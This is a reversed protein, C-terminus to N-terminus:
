QTILNLIRNKVFIVKRIQAGSSLLNRVSGLEKAKTEVTNQDSDPEFELKAKTKGNIQIAITIRELQVLAEEYKPWPATSIFGKEGIKEWIEEAFHPAFPALCQLFIKIVSRPRNKEQSLTNVFIMLQSIATNFALAEIDHTTKKITQHLTRLLKESPKEEDLLLQGKEDHILTWFKNLFKFVGVLGTHQWPRDKELPGMFLVYTRLADAGYHDIIEDPSITNGHSKSMREGDEGLIIGQHVLKQFPEKHSVLGEEYLFKQWFRAYLLHGVTHETGGVYLDVPMFYEQAEFSFPEKDNHPDTYRLFYWSSGASSPMTDTERRGIEDTKPNKYELWDKPAKSLPAEGTESPQYDKIEPLVVPLGKLPLAESKDKYHVIPFPEGWYRQRSFLWDRLKYNVVREGYGEKEMHAMIASTAEHIDMGDLFGSNMMTGREEQVQEACTIESTDGDPGVVVRVIDLEMEQAFEFDRLDHGPVGVVSGTGVTGLVFDSVYIPMKKGTLPNIAHWGTFVGTKKRGESIRDIDSKKSTQTRYVEVAEKNPFANLNMSVFESDPAVVIFTAGFNTDPRTTFCVIECKAEQIPYRINIGEKRGIWNRQGEKTRPIWDIKELDNLLQEAYDTIKLMWQKMFRQEVPHGGRESKGDIVEENALVTRLAPCWNVPMEKQYTLGRKFLLTFIYQTWKYYIPDCTMLERSWDYSYGLKKLQRKFNSIAEKTTKEPHIGTQIAHQEAPLGFADYGIPHLVNFGRARKFRSVVDTPTYSMVHGVHLGKGSPYPFMDLCYFKKKSRDLKVEFLKADEWRKQWKPEIQSFPYNM